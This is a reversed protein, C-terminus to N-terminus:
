RGYPLHDPLAPPAVPGQALHAHRGTEQQHVREIRLPQRCLNRLDARALLNPVSLQHPSEPCCDGADSWGRSWSLGGVGCQGWASGDAQGESNVIRGGRKADVNITEAVRIGFSGEKTDGLTLPGQSAMLLVDFDIWRSSGDLGFTLRRRDECVKDGGPGIWDNETALIAQQGSAMTTFRRHVITGHTGSEDWFSVGNVSGHNFWLSRHHPHDKTEGQSPGLPYARTMPKGTPGIIPWLVPKTGSRILYETFLAGDIKVAAGRRTAEVTLDAASAPFFSMAWGAFFMFWLRNGM